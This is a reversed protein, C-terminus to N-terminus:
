QSMLTAILWFVISLIALPLTVHRRTKLHQRELQHRKADRMEDKRREAEHAYANEYGRPFM